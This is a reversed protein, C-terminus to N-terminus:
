PVVGKITRTLLEVAAEARYHADARIDDIPSLAQGVLDAPIDFDAVSQGILAREVAPLRVAVASCSGISLAASRIVGADEELRAAVMAISIVLYKRAGLKLFHSRGATAAKPVLVASVIEGPKLRTARNGTIFEALPLRRHGAASVLEVAADLILLPPVGDAAPSANCINGGLTGANQIQVSGVERASLKLADFADPLDAAVLDSWRTAAGIRIEGAADTIGRLAAIGTIDLIDGRLEQASTAPYLDTGGALITPSGAALLALADTLADPRHYSM